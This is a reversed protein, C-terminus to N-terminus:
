RWSLKGSYVDGQAAVAQVELSWEKTTAPWAGSLVGLPARLGKKVETTQPAPESQTRRGNVTEVLRLSRLKISKKGFNALAVGITYATGPGVHAPTVTFDIRGPVEAAKKVVVDGTDFGRPAAAGGGEGTGLEPVFSRRLAALAAAARARGEQARSQGPELRLAQDYASQAAEWRGEALARDGEALQRAVEPHPTAPRAPAPPRPTPVPTAEPSPSEEPAPTAEPTPQPTPTPAPTPTPTPTPIPAPTALPQRRSEFASWAVFTAVCLLVGAVLGLAFWLAAAGTRSDRAM